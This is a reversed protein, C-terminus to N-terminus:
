QTEHVPEELRAATTNLERVITSRILWAGLLSPMFFNPEFEAWYRLRTRQGEAQVQWRELSFRFDSNTPDALSLIQGDPLLTVDVTRQIRRCFILVCPRLVILVRRKNGESTLVRTEVVTDSLRDLHDYDTLRQWVRETPADLLVDFAVHYRADERVVDTHMIEAAWLPAAASAAAFLVLRFLTTV